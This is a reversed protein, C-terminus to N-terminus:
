VRDVVWCVCCYRIYHDSIKKTFINKRSGFSLSLSLFFSLSLSRSPVSGRNLLITLSLWSLGARHGSKYTTKQRVGCIGQQGRSYMFYFGLESHWMSIRAQNYSFVNYLFTGLENEHKRENAWCPVCKLKAPVNNGLSRNWQRVHKAIGSLQMQDPLTIWNLCARVSPM